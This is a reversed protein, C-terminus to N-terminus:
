FTMLYHAVYGVGLTVLPLVIRKTLVYALHTTTEKQTAGRNPQSNAIVDADTTPWFLVATFATVALGYAHAMGIHPAGLPVVFWQWMRSMMYASLFVGVSSSIFGVFRVSTSYKLM